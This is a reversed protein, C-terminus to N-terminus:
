RAGTWGPSVWLSYPDVPSEQHCCPAVHFKHKIEKHSLFFFPFGNVFDAAVGWLSFLTLLCLGAGPWESSFGRFIQAHTHVPWSKKRRKVRKREDNLRGREEWSGRKEERMMKRGRGDRRKMGREDVKRQRRERDENKM